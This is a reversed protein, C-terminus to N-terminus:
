AWHWSSTCGITQTTSPSLTAASRDGGAVILDPLDEPPGRQDVPRGRDEGRGQGYQRESCDRDGCEDDGGPEAGDGRRQGCRDDAGGEEGSEARVDDDAQGGEGGDRREERQPRGARAALNPDM